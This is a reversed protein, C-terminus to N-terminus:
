SAMTSRRRAREIMERVAAIAAELQEDTLSAVGPSHEVKMERPVYMKCFAAPQNRACKELAKMGNKDWAKRMDQLFAKNVQRRTAEPSGGPNGVEGLTFTSRSISRARLYRRVSGRM